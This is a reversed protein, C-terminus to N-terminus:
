LLDLLAVANFLIMFHILALAALTLIIFLKIPLNRRRARASIM